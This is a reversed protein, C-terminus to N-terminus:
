CSIDEIHQLITNAVDELSVLGEQSDGHEPHYLYVSYNMDSNWIVHVQTRLGPRKFYVTLLSISIEVDEPFPVHKLEDILEVMREALTGYRQSKAVQKGYFGSLEDWNTNTVMNNM